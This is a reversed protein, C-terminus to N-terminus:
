FISTLLNGFATNAFGFSEYLCVAERNSGFVELEVRELGANFGRLLAAELLKKGM